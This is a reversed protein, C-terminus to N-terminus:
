KWVNQNYPVSLTDLVKSWIKWRKAMYDVFEADHDPWSNTLEFPSAKLNINTIKDEKFSNQWIAIAYSEAAYSFITFRQPQVSFDLYNKVMPLRPDSPPVLNYFQKSTSDYGYLLDPKNNNNWIWNIGMLGVTIAYDDPNYFNALKINSEILRKFYPDPSITRDGTPYFSAINPNDVLVGNAVKREDPDDDSKTQETTDNHFHIEGDRNYDVALGADFVSIPFTDTFKRRGDPLNVAIIVDTQTQSESLGKVEIKVNPEVPLSIKIKGGDLPSKPTISVDTTNPIIDLKAPYIFVGSKDYPNSDTYKFTVNRPQNVAVFRPGRYDSIGTVLTGKSRESGKETLEMEETDILEDKIWEM